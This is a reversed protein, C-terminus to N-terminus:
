LQGLDAGSDLVLRAEAARMATSDPCQLGMIVGGVAGPGKQEARLRLFDRARCLGSAGRWTGLGRPAGSTVYGIVQAPRKDRENFSSLVERATRAQGSRAAAALQGQGERLSRGARKRQLLGQRIAAADPLALAALVAGEEAVGPGIIHISVRVLCMPDMHVLQQVPHWIQRPGHGAGTGARSNGRAEDTGGSARAVESSSVASATQPGVAANLQALTRAVYLQPAAYAQALVAQPSKHTAEASALDAEAASSAAMARGTGADPGTDMATPGGAGAGGAPLAEAAVMPGELLTTSSTQEAAVDVISSDSDAGAAPLVAASVVSMAVEAMDKSSGPQLAIDEMLVDADAGEAPLAGATPMEDLRDPEDASGEMLVHEQEAGNGQKEGQDMPPIGVCPAQEHPEAPAAPGPRKPLESIALAAWNPPHPTGLPLRGKPRLQRLREQEAHLETALRGYAATDPFDHPFFAVGHHAAAWRWERQGAPRAGEYVFVQWFHSAWGAPLILSWGPAANGDASGASARRVALAPCGESASGPTSAAPSPHIDDSPLHLAALKTHHRTACVAQDPMPLPIEGASWLPPSSSSEASTMLVSALEKTERLEEGYSPPPTQKTRTAVGHLDQLTVLSAAAKIPRALRPDELRLSLATGNPLQSATAGGTSQLLQWISTCTHSPKDPAPSSEQQDRKKDLLTLAASVARDSMAGRVELRRLDARCTLSASTGKCASLLANHAESSGAPHVWLLAESLTAATSTGAVASHEVVAAAAGPPSWLLIRAPTLAGRPCRGLSHLMIDHELVGRALEPLQSFASVQDSVASLIALLDARPGKLQLAIWYSADHIVVDSRLAAMFARSGHGKGCAGEALVHGWRTVMSMRRAHWVHTELRRSTSSEAGPSFTSCRQVIQQQLRGRRRRMARNEYKPAEAKPDVHDSTSCEAEEGADKAGKQRKAHLKINPRKRHVYSNHSTARRRLHRPLAAYGWKERSDPSELAASLARIEEERATAFRRVELVRPLEEKSGM